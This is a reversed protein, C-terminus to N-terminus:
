RSGKKRSCKFLAVVLCPPARPPRQTRDADSMSNDFVSSRGCITQSRSPRDGWALRRRWREPINSYGWDAGAIQGAVVGVSDADDGLNVARQVAKSRLPGESPGSAAEFTDVVYGTSRIQSRGKGRWSGAAVPKVKPASFEEAAAALSDAGRSAIGAALILALAGAADPCEAAAYQDRALGAASAAHM